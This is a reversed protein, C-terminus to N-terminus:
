GTQEGLKKVIILLLASLSAELTEYRESQWHHWEMNRGRTTKVMACFKLQAPSAQYRTDVEALDGDANLLQKAYVICQMM